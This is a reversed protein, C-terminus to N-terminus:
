DINIKEEQEVLIKDNLGSQIEVYYPNFGSEELVSKDLQFSDFFENIKM